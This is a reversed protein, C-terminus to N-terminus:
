WSSNFVGGQARALMHQSFDLALLELRSTGVVRTFNSLLKTRKDQYKRTIQVSCFDSQFYINLSPNFPDIELDQSITTILIQSSGRNMDAKIRREHDKYM